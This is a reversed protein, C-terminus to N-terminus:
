WKSSPRYLRTQNRQNGIDFTDSDQSEDPFSLVQPKRHSVKDLGEEIRVSLPKRPRGAGPRKGGRAM